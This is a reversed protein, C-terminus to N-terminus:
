LGSWDNKSLDQRGLSISGALGPALQGVGPRTFALLRVQGCGISREDVDGGIRVLGGGLVVILDDLLQVGPAQDPGIVRGHDGLSALTLTCSFLSSVAVRRPAQHPM